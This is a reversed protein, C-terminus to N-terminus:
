EWDEWDTNDNKMAIEVQKRIGSELLQCAADHGWATEFSEFAGSLFESAEYNEVVRGIYEDKDLEGQNILFAAYELSVADTRVEIGRDYSPEIAIPSASYERCYPFKTKLEITPIM